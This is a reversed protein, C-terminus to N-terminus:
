VITNDVAEPLDEFLARMEAASKFRYEPNLRRRDSESVFAGDAICMLADHAEFMSADTFHCDNTAVLPLDLGYALDLLAPEVRAESELGHRMIEVYLRGPFAAALREALAVAEGGHADALKRARDLNRNAVIVKGVGREVLHKLTLEGTDGSGIVMVTKDSLDMFVSVALDVAVSSVSVKGAGIDSQSRVRKAVSFAKQFLSNLVKDTAQETHAQLYADHVQGQIQTEGVVLSDLSSTVRFLHRVTERGDHEYLADQFEIEPIKHWDSIFRRIDRHLDAAAAAHNVYIESRNCTSLIVVGADEIRDRLQALAKPLSESSFALRERLAVDSGHHSVGTVVLSM